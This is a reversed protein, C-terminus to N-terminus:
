RAPLNPPAYSMCARFVEPRLAGGNGCIELRAENLALALLGGNEALRCRRGCAPKAAAWSSMGEPKAARRSLQFIRSKRAFASGDGSVGARWRCQCLTVAANSM